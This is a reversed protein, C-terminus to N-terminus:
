RWTHRWVSLLSDNKSSNCSVCAPVINGISHTGGRAIPVVHDQTLPVHARCYACRYGYRAKLRAWDRATFTFTGASRLLAKRKARHAQRADPNAKSWAAVAILRTAQNRAYRERAATRERDANKAYRQRVDATRQARNAAYYAADTARRHERNRANYEATYARQAATCLECRCKRRSYGGTTGHKIPTSQGM